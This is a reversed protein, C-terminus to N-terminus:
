PDFKVREAERAFYLPISRLCLALMYFVALILGGHEKVTQRYVQRNEETPKLVYKLIGAVGTHYTTYYNPYDKHYFQKVYRRFDISVAHLGYSLNKGRTRATWSDGTDTVIRYASMTEEMCYMDGALLTQLMIKIDRNKARIREFAEQQEKSAFELVSARHILSATQGPYVTGLAFRRLNYRHSRYKRYFPYISEIPRDQRDVFRSNNAAGAYEANAELFAVQKALKDMSCWYDDCECYAVYKGRVMPYMFKEIFDVDQSYQNETQLVPRIIHPYKGAYERIIKQSGDTSADDHIIVEFPFDTQQGLVSDLAQRMYEEHNYSLMIVSVM